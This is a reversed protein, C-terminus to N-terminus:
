GEAVRETGAFSQALVTSIFQDLSVGEREAVEVIAEHLQAPIRVVFRRYCGSDEKLHAFLGRGLFKAKDFDVEPM